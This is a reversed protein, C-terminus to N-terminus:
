QLVRNLGLFVACFKHSGAVSLNVMETRLVEGFLLIQVWRYRLSPLKM